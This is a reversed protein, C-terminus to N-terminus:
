QYSFHHYYSLVVFRQSVKIGGLNDGAEQRFPNLLQHHYMHNIDAMSQGNPLLGSPAITLYARLTLM